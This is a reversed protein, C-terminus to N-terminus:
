WTFSPIRPDLGLRVRGAQEGMVPGTIVHQNVANVDRWARQIAGDADLAATGGWRLVVEALNKAANAMLRAAGFVDAIADVPPTSGEVAHAWVAESSSFLRDRAALCRDNADLFELQLGPHETLAAGTDTSRKGEMLDLFAATASRAIGASIAGHAAALATMWPMRGIPRDALRNSSRFDVVYDSPVDVNDVAIDHSGSGRVGVADWTELIEVSAAPVMAMLLRPSGDVKVVSDANADWELTMLGVWQALQCGTVLQWRGSVRYGDGEAVARGSPRTSNAYMGKPDAFVEARVEDDLHRSVLAPLCNNFVVLAVAADAAALEEMVSMLTTIDAEHGPADTPLCLRGLGADALRAGIDDPVRRAREGARAAAVLTHALEKASHLPDPYTTM